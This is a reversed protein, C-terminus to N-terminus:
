DALQLSRDLQQTLTPLDLIDVRAAALEIALPIGGLRDCLRVLSTAEEDRLLFWPQSAVARDLFLRAAPYKVVADATWGTGEGSPCELAPLHIVHEDEGQLPERSTNLIHVEACARLIRDVVYSSAELVHECNDFILLLRRDHLCNLVAAELGISSVPLRLAGAIRSILMGKSTLPTLEVFVAGDEFVSSARHGAAIAVSTKGIGGSGVLTVLRRTAIARLLDEVIADRGILETWLHPLNSHTRQRSTTRHSKVPLNFKYGQGPVTVIADTQGTAAVLHKRINALHVRLNSEVVPAAPWVQELIDQGSVIKGARGVLITLIQMARGGLPVPVGESMLLKRNPILEFPGFIYRDKLENMAM